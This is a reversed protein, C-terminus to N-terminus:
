RLCPVFFVATAILAAVALVLQIRSSPRRALEARDNLIAPPLLAGLVLGGLWGGFHCSNSVIPSLFGLGLTYLSWVALVIGVRHDRLEIEHRHAYMLAIVAGALGFIAGSAGVTPMPGIMTMLSGSVCAAVYLFLFGSLGFAHECAMGLIFLMFMNGVLHDVSAHMFGGSVLRWLEGQIVQERHMAGTDVVRNINELGGIMSQRAFVVACAAMIALTAPPFVSMGAELDVRERHLMHDGITLIPEDEIEEVGVGAEDPVPTSSLSAEEEPLEYLPNMPEPEVM